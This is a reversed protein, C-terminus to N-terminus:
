ETPITHLRKCKKLHAAISRSSTVTFGILDGCHLPCIWRNEENVQKSAEAVKAENAKSKRKTLKKAAKPLSKKEIEQIMQDRSGLTETLEFSEERGLPQQLLRDSTLFEFSYIPDFV